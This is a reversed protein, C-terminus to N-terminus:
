RAGLACHLGDLITALRQSVQARCAGASQCQAGGWGYACVYQRRHQLAEGVKVRPDVHRDARTVGFLDQRHHEVVFNLNSEHARQAVRVDIGHRQVLVLQHQHTIWLMAESSAPRDFQGLDAALAQDHKVTRRAVELQGLRQKQASADDRM